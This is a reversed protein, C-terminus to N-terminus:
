YSVKLKQKLLESEIETKKIKYKTKFKRFFIDAYCLSKLNLFNDIKM